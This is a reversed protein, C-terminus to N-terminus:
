RATPIAPVATAAPKGDPRLLLPGGARVGLAHATDADLRHVDFPVRASTLGGLVRGDLAPGRAPQDGSGADPGTFLTLGPGLLDLTSTRRGTLPLWHHPVRGALDVALEEAADRIGDPQASRTANREAVPRREPEYSDLLGPAAWGLLV